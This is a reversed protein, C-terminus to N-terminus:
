SIPEKAIHIFEAPSISYKELRYALTRRSMQLFSAARSQNGGFKRLARVIVEKEMESLNMGAEPLVSPLVESPTDDYQLFDPLDRVGIEPGRALLVTREIANELQRVNGPWPYNCLRHLVDHPLTLDERAHKIKCRVFFHEVLEPIDEARDRLPPLEIPVVILRYYLDERFSGAKVMAGLDRHTAAIIRVDLKIPSTAGIKEIEREQILRLVRVQLELPMEGIEDLLITGGDAVEAKGKKHVVAGTFSGKTHGFLESELLDRPISGCNVTVFPRDRRPSRFHIAKAVLEKGTGTEGHLLVTVDAAAVRAAIDLTRMLCASSGIISEFGYKQELCSRLLDVEESLKRHSLVRSVLATLEYPHVPKTLYDYAGAKMAEVASQITGFATMVIVATDSYIGRAKKLLEIGSAGPLHLDTIILDVPSRQLVEIAQEANSVSTTEYGQKRLVSEMVHRVIDEDEAILIRANEM